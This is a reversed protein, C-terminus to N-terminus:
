LGQYSSTGKPLSRIDFIIKQLMIIKEDLRQSIQIFGPDSIGKNKALEYMDQRYENISKSLDLASKLIMLKIEKGGSTL